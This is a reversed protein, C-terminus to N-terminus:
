VEPKQLQFQQVLMELEESMTSLEQASVAISEISASQEETAAGPEQSGSSIREIGQAVLSIVDGIEVIQKLITNLLQGSREVARASEQAEESGRNIGSVTWETEEQINRVM